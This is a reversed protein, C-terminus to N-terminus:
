RHRYGLPEDRSLAYGTPRATDQGQESPHFQSAVRLRWFHAAADAIGEEVVQVCNSGNLM